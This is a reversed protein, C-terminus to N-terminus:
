KLLAMLGPPQMKKANAFEDYHKLYVSLDGPKALGLALAQTKLAKEANGAAFWATALTDVYAAVGSAYEGDPLEDRSTIMFQALHLAKEPNRVQPETATALIYAQLNVMNLKLVQLLRGDDLRNLSSNARGLAEMAEVERDLEALVHAHMSEARFSQMPSGALAEGVGDLLMAANGYYGKQRPAGISAVMCSEALHLRAAPNDNLATALIRGEGLLSDKEERTSASAIRNPLAELKMGRWRSRLSGAVLGAVLVAVVILALGIPRKWRALFPNELPPLGCEERRYRGFVLKEQQEASM